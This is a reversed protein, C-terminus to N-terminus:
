MMHLAIFRENMETIGPPKPTSAPVTLPSLVVALVALDRGLPAGLQQGLRARDIMVGPVAHGDRLRLVRDGLEGFSRSCPM